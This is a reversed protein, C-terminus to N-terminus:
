FAGPIVRLNRPASPLTVTAASSAGPRRMLSMPNVVNQLGVVNRVYGVLPGGVRSQSSNYELWLNTLFGASRMEVRNFLRVPDRTEDAVWVSVRDWESPQLEVLVWYRTWKRAAINFQGVQPQISDGGGYSTNPGLTTYPRADINAVSGGGASYKSRIELWRQSNDVPSAIQFNKHTNLGGRLAASAYEEGWWADWTLFLTGSNTNIPLRVQSPISAKDAPLVVKAADQKFPYADNAPDFTISDSNGGSYRNLQAQERLSYVYKSESRAALENFYAHPDEAAALAASGTPITALAALAAVSFGFVFRRMHRFGRRTNKLVSFLNAVVTGSSNARSVSPKQMTRNRDHAGISPVTDFSGSGGVGADLAEDGSMDTQRRPHYCTDTQRWTFM